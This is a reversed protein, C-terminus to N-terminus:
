TPRALTIVEPSTPTLPTRDWNGHRQVTKLGAAALLTDLHAPTLFRLTSHTTLPADWSPSTTTSTFTVLGQPTIPHADNVDALPTGDPLTGTWPHDPTWNEWPRATINRTEFAILGTPTLATRMATLAHVIDHDTHLEQFAHGTMTVLDFAGDWTHTTLDGRTWTVDTTHARAIDLMADAPDLGLLHGTHGHARATRLLLGTGCGVDLATPAAMVLDLYFDDCAAWPNLLDYLAAVAPDDYPNHM